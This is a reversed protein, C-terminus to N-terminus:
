HSVPSLGMFTLDAETHMCFSHERPTTTRAESSIMAVITKQEALSLTRVNPIRAQLRIRGESEDARGASQPMSAAQSGSIPSHFSPDATGHIDQEM